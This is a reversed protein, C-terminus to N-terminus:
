VFVIMLCSGPISPKQDNDVAPTTARNPKHRDTDIQDKRGIRERRVKKGSFQM